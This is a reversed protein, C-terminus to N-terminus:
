PIIKSIKVNGLSEGKEEQTTEWLLPTIQGM